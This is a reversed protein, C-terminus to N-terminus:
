MNKHTNLCHFYPFFFFFFSFVFSVFCFLLTRYIGSISKVSKTPQSPKAQSTPQRDDLISFQNWSNLKNQIDHPRICKKMVCVFVCLCVRMWFLICDWLIFAESVCLYVAAKWSSTNVRWEGMMEYEIYMESKNCRDKKERRSSNSSGIIIIISM